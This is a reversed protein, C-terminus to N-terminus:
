ATKKMFYIDFSSLDGGSMGSVTVDIRIYKCSCPTDRELWKQSDGTSTGFSSSGFFDQTVDLFSATLIDAVDENSVHVTLDAYGDGSISLQLSFYNQGQFDIYKSITADSDAQSDSLDAFSYRDQPIFVPIQKNADSVADYVRDETAVRRQDTILISGADGDTLTSATPNAAYVGGTVVPKDTFADGDATTGQVYGDDITVSPTNQVEVLLNQTTSNKPGFTKM